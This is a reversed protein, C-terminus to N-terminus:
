TELAAVARRLREDAEAAVARLEPTDVITFMVNPDIVLVRVDDGDQRLTVNCPLMLGIGPEALLARHALPPNCAGLIVHPAHDAGIKAKLTAAIDIFTLVGFGETKLAAEVLPRAADVTTGRLTTGFGYHTM